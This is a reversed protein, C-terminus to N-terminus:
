RNISMLKPHTALEQLDKIDIPKVYYEDCGHKRAQQRHEDDNHGTLAVILTSNKQDLRRLERAVELGSMDPLMLDLVVIEPPTEQFMRIATAGSTAVLPAHGLKEFLLSIMRAIGATDEIILVRRSPINQSSLSTSESEAFTSNEESELAPLRVSFVSGRDAGESDASVSGQHLEVLQKVLSLGLGLGGKSHLKSRQEQTFTSFVDQLLEPDIGFGNDCVEIVAADRDQKTNLWITGKKDTYKSANTLLNAFVQALRIEDGELFIPTESLELKLDQQKERIFPNVTEIARNLVHTLDLKEKKLDIKGHVIRSADLLDNILHKMQDLQRKMTECSERILSPDLDDMQLLGVALEMPALPGRLEHALMALFEDKRRDAQQLAQAKEENAKNLAALEVNAKNLKRQLTILSNNLRSLDDDSQNLGSLVQAEVQQSTASLASRNDAQSRSQILRNAVDIADKGDLAAADAGVRKWLYPDINFPYGGALIKVQECGPHSRVIRIVDAMGFLHQTMTCSIALIQARSSALTEAISEPPVNAGLYITNWGSVEFLDAVIRLGVEHLEDGVCTAVLTQDASTTKLFWPQLQSMVFQTAATCYHEQAVSIQGTQWLRGLEHQAPQIVDLYISEIEVGSQIAKMVMNLADNRHTALLSTLYNHQLQALPPCVRAPPEALRDVLLSNRATDIYHQVVSTTEQPFEAEVVSILADLFQSIECFYPSVSEPLQTVWHVFDNLLVPSEFEICAALILIHTESQELRTVPPIEKNLASSSELHSCIAEAIPRRGERLMHASIRATDTM